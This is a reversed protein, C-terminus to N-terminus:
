MAMFMAIAYGDTYQPTSGGGQFFLNYSGANVKNITNSYGGANVFGLGILGATNAITVNYSGTSIRKVTVGPSSNYINIVNSSSNWSFSIYAKIMYSTVNSITISQFNGNGSCSLSTGNLPGSSNVGGTGVSIGTSSNLQTCSIPGDLSLGSSGINIGNTVNLSNCGILGDVNLGGSGVALGNTINVNPISVSGSFTANNFQSNDNVKLANTTTLGQVQLGNGGVTAGASAGITAAVIPGAVTIGTSGVNIGGSGVTISDSSFDGNITVDSNVNLTDTTVGGVVNIGGGSISIGNTSVIRDGSLGNIFALGKYFTGPGSNVNLTDTTLTKTVTAGGSLNSYGIVGFNGAISESGTVSLSSNITTMVNTKDATIYYIQLSSYDNNLTNYEDALYGIGSSMAFSVLWLIILLFVIIWIVYKGKSNDEYDSSM